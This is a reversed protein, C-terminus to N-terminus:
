RSRCTSLRMQSMSVRMTASTARSDVAVCDMSDDIIVGVEEAIKTVESSIRALRGGVASHTM